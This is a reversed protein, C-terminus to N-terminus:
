TWEVINEGNKRAPLPYKSFVEFGVERNRMVAFFFNFDANRNLVLIGATNRKPTQTRTVIIFIFYINPNNIVEIDYYM